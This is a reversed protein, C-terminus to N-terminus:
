HYHLLDYGIRWTVAEPINTLIAFAPILNSLDPHLDPLLHSSVLMTLILEIDNMHDRLNDEKNLSKFNKYKQATMDFTGKYIEDIREKGVRALWLKFPEAKPSPIAQIIRFIGELDSCNMKQRGGKTMIDLTSVFQVYGQSLQPDCERMKTIYDKVNQSNTLAMVVDEVVFYWQDNHWTRRIERSEFIAVTKTIENLNRM